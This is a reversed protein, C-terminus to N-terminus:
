IERMQNESGFSFATSLAARKLKPLSSVASLGESMMKLEFSLRAAHANLKSSFIGNVGKVLLKKFYIM